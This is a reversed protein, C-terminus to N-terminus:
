APIVIVFLNAGSWFSRKVDDRLHQWAKVLTRQKSSDVAVLCAYDYDWEAHKADGACYPLGLYFFAQYINQVLARRGKEASGERFYKAEFLVKYPFAGDRGQARYPNRMAFDPCAQSFGNGAKGHDGKWAAAIADVSTGIGKGFPHRAVRIASMSAFLAKAMSSEALLAAKALTADQNVIGLLQEHLVPLLWEDVLTGEWPVHGKKDAKKERAKADISKILDPADRLRSKLSGKYTTLFDYVATKDNEDIRM